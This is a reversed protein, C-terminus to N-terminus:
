LTIHHSNVAMKFIGETVERASVLYTPPADDPFRAEEAASPLNGNIHLRNGWERAKNCPALFRDIINITPITFAKALM